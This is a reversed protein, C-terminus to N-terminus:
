QIVKGTTDMLHFEGLNLERVGPEIKARDGVVVWTMNDPRVVEKAANNVDSTTLAHV